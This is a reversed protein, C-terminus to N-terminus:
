VLGCQVRCPIGEGRGKHIKLGSELGVEELFDREMVTARGAQGGM